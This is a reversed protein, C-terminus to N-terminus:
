ETESSSSSSLRLASPPPVAGDTLGRNKVKVFAESENLHFRLYLGVIGLLVSALFPIRWGWSQLDDDSLLERLLTVFGMGLVTGSLATAKCVGGVSYLLLDLHPSFILPPPPFSKGWLGKQTPECAEITFIYAGIMEGGVALGQLMRLLVLLITALYGVSNFTPLCGMFFGPVVMLSISLELAFKRGFNDGIYGMIIGGLPRMLFTSSYVTFSALLATKHENSPFFHSGIIDALAGYIAFDFWELANGAGIACILRGFESNGNTSEESAIVPGVAAGERRESKM